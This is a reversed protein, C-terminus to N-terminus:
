IKIAATIERLKIGTYIVSNYEYVTTTTPVRVNKKQFKEERFIFCFVVMM